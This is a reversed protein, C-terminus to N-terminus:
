MGLSRLRAEYFFWQEVTGSSRGRGELKVCTNLVFVLTGITLYIVCDWCLHGQGTAKSASVVPFGGM